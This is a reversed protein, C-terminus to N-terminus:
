FSFKLRIFLAKVPSRYKGNDRNYALQGVLDLDWDQAISFTFSPNLFLPRSVVPSYIVALSANLLPTIPYALSIVSSHRFPYLNKASLEFNFIDSLSGKTAGNSNYLYGASIYLGKSFVYDVAATLAFSNSGSKEQPIFYSWEGKFGATKINGAWGGGIVWERNAIGALVQIDYQSMNWKYLGAIVRDGWTKGINAAFEVSSAVGTYYKVRVADSGPREEYDFDTFSFANFLDNPNWITSIGWNIRQRGFRTEFNGKVYQVYARDITTNILFDSKDVWHISLDFFNNNANEINETFLPNIKVLDGYFIRNRFDVSFLFNTSPEYKLNIRNHLLNDVLYSNFGDIKIVSQLQKVYGQASFSAIEDEGQATLLHCCLFVLAFLFPRTM